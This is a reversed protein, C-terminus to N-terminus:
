GLAARAAEELANMVLLEPRPGHSVRAVGSEAPARVPPTGDGVM